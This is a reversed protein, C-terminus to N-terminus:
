DDRPDVPASRPEAHASRPPAEPTPTAGTRATADPWDSAFPADAELFDYLEEAPTESRQQEPTPAPATRARTKRPGTVTGKPEAAQAPVAGRKRTGRLRWARVTWAVPLGTVLVWAGAAPGTLWWVPGFDALAAVGLPGGSLAALLALSAACLLAALALVGTTRLASWPVAAEGRRAAGRAVFWGTTMGAAVPVAAGAWNLPTGAGPDPVAALLPFPPLLPAPDSLLPHVLHGSGLTFGPGLAYSAAWVAANPILSVALLLVTARGTWGETLQTFALRAADGHGVLSVGLLLAGGGTLVATGAVAARLATRLRARGQVGACLGRVPGPLPGLPRGYASWVGSAAAAATILPLCVTMWPWSPALEGGSGYLAVATAVGLYGLVVGTWATRAPVAPPADSAGPGDDAGPTEPADVADRAARHLLWVPLALLLLPTLGVPQPVGSLTDARLLEAGHALLWLAAAVHLASGPGSDPYPSSVWLVMVLAACAALGLAAALAGGALSAGLGPSRDRLRTRLSSSLSSSSSRDTPLLM